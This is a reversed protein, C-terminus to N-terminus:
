FGKIGLYHLAGVVVGERSYGQNCMAIARRVNIGDTDGQVGVILWRHCGLCTNDELGLAKQQEEYLASDGGNFAIARNCDCSGNGESWWYLDFDNKSCWEACTRVEGTKTDLITVIM